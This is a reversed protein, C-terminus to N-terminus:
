APNLEPMEAKKVVLKKIVFYSIFHITFTLLWSVPYSIYLTKLDRSQAFIVLIWSIRGGCVGVVSVIMPMLSKGMGRLMGVMVEMMGCLFYTRAIINMRILGYEIVKANGPAYIGLLERGFFLALVGMGFGIVFVTMICIGMIRNIREYKKAGM